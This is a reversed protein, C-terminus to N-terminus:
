AGDEHARRGSGAAQAGLRAGLRRGFALSPTMMMGSCYSNGSTTGAGFVEGIAYLGDVASGDPRRVRLETDVDLGSFTILTVGHNQLAYFPPEVLTAPRHARGLADARGAAVDANYREVTSELGVPDIGAREALERIDDGRHVGARTGAQALLDDLEWGVVMQPSERRARDDFVMWFELDDVNMLTREKVGNSPADEAVFRRGQQDVYIEWPLREYAALLPREAWSSRSPAAPQPLGGFIPLYTGQGSLAAGLQQGLVLGDGMSTRYAGSVLPVGEVESFLEPNAGYGGSALVVSPADVDEDGRPGTITVGVVAGRDDTRIDTVPSSTRLVVQGSDVAKTLLPELVRLVSLGGERGYYSRPVLYPEHFNVIVPSEPTFEFGLDDLWDVTAPALEVALRIIDDRGTGGSITRVDALHQAVSDEIGRAAQLRTGAASLGGDTIHLTGGIRTDKELLLVRAGASAAEVACPIGATGAGVVIVDFQPQESM